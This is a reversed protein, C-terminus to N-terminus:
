KLKKIRMHEEPGFRDFVYHVIEINGLTWVYSNFGENGKTIKSPSGFANVFHSQFENFYKQQDSYDLRFFELENLRIKENSEFHFGLMCTLGNLSVCNTTYYGKTVKKLEHGNFLNILAQENIDWPVFIKPNDIQFGTQINMNFDKLNKAKETIKYNDQGGFFALVSAILLKIKM